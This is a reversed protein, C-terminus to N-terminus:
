QSGKRIAKPVGGNISERLLRLAFATRVAVMLKAFTHSLRETTLEFHRRHAMLHNQIAQGESILDSFKGQEWVTLRRTLCAVHDKTKSQQHPKQLLLLPMLMAAKLAIGQMATRDAFARFLKAQEHM